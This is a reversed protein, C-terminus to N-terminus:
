ITLLYKYKLLIVQNQILPKEPQFAQIDTNLLQNYVLFLDNGESFNYRFRLNSGLEKRNYDLQLYANLSMSKNLNYKIKATYLSITERRDTGLTYSVPFEFSNVDYSLGMGFRQNFLFNLDGSLILKEGGYFDGYDVSVTYNYQASKASRYELYFSDMAYEGVPVTVSKSFQWDQLVYDKQYMPLYIVMVAGSSFLFQYYMNHQIFQHQHSSAQYYFTHYNGIILRSLFSDSFSFRYGARYTSHTYNRRPLFGLDPNFNEQYEYYRASVEIGDQPYRSLEFGFANSHDSPLTRDSSNAFFSNLIFSNDFRIVADLGLVTNASGTETKNKHTFYTGIYSEDDKIQKTVRAVSFNKASIGESALGNSQMNLLGYQWGGSLGVLRIGGILPVQQGSETGINRSNFMIHDATAASFFNSNELFFERKEPQLISYRTINILRDEAEAQAYDTNLSIDITHSSNPKYKIDLGMNSFLRDLGD